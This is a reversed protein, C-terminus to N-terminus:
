PFVKLGQFDLHRKLRTWPAPEAEGADTAQLARNCWYAAVDVMQIGTSWHSPVFFPAEVIHKITQWMTGASRYHSLARRLREEAGKQDDSVIIGVTPQRRGLFVDYRETMFTYAIDEPADPRKYKKKLKQKNVACMLLKPTHADMVDCVAALLGDRTGRPMVKFPGKGHVIDTMHLEWREHRPPPVFRDIRTMLDAQIAQISTDPIAMGGLVYYPQAPDDLGSKGSEDLYLFFV